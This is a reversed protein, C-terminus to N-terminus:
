HINKVFFILIDPALVHFVNRIVRMGFAPEHSAAEWLGVFGTSLLNKLETM